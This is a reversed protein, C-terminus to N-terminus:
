FEDPDVPKPLVLIVGRLKLWARMQEADEGSLIVRRARKRDRESLAGPVVQERGKAQLFYVILHWGADEIDAINDVNLWRDTLRVWEGRL